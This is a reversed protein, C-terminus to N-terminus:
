RHRLMRADVTPEDPPPPFEALQPGVGAEVHCNTCASTLEAELRCAQEVSSARALAAAKDRVAVVHAAWPGHAPSDPAMAIAAAFRKADDLKGFILLREIARLLDFNEHMHMRMVDVREFRPPPQPRPEPRTKIPPRPAPKPKLRDAAGYSGLAVVLALAAALSGRRMAPLM